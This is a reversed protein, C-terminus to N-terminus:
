RGRTEIDAGFASQRLEDAAFPLQRDQAITELPRSVSASLGNADDALWADALGTEEVLNSAREFPLVEREQRALTERVTMRRRVSRHEFKEPHVKLYLIAVIGQLDVRFQAAAETRQIGLELCHQWEEPLEQRRRRVFRQLFELRLGLPL